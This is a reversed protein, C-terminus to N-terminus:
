YIGTVINIKIPTFVGLVVVVTIPLIRCGMYNCPSLSVSYTGPNLAAQFKATLECQGQLTWSLLAIQRQGTSSTIVLDPGTAPVSGTTTCVPAINAITASGNIGQHNMLNQARDTERHISFISNTLFPTTAIAYATAILSTALFALLLIALAKKM